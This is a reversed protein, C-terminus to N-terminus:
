DEKYKMGTIRELESVSIRVSGFVRIVEIEKKAIKKKITIESLRLIGAVEKITFLKM